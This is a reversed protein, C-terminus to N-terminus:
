RAPIHRVRYLFGDKVALYKPHFGPSTDNVVPGFEDYDMRQVIEGTDAQVESFAQGMEDRGVCGGVVAVFGRRARLGGVKMSTPATVEHRGGARKANPGM